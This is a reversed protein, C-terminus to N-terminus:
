PNAYVLRELHSYFKTAREKDTLLPSLIFFKERIDQWDGMNPWRDMSTDDMVSHHGGFFAREVFNLPHLKISDFKSQPFIHCISHRFYMDDNKQSKEFCGCKCFGSLDKRRAQFWKEKETQDDGRQEKEKNIKEQRKPSIKNITYKKKEKLPRDALIHAMRFKHYDNM